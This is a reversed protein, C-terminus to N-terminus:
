MKAKVPWRLGKHKQLVAKVSGVSLPSDIMLPLRNEDDTVWVNISAGDPFVRGPIVEPSFHQTNYKGLDRINKSAERGQYRVKLPWTEKDMFLQIPFTDDKKMKSFDVNRAHYLISVIDHMCDDIQFDHHERIDTTSKGRDNHVKGRSQDYTLYDYLRYKGEEINRIGMIPLGTEKQVWTDYYDRVKFFWDYSDYTKGVVQFHWQDDEDIVKFTMEGASLWVFNWNYYLKYTLEEGASYTTNKTVCSNHDDDTFTPSTEFKASTTPTDMKAFGFFLFVLTLSSFVLPKRLNKTKM